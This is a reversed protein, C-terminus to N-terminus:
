DKRPVSSDLKNKFPIKFFISLPILVLYAFLLVIPSISLSVFSDWTGISMLIYGIILVAFSLILVNYNYKNWYEKFPSGVIKKQEKIHKQIKSM